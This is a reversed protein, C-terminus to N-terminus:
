GIGKNSHPASPGSIGGKRVDTLNYLVDGVASRFNLQFHIRWARICVLVFGSPDQRSTKSV